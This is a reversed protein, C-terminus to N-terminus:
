RLTDILFLLFGYCVPFTSMALFQVGASSDKFPNLDGFFQLRIQVYLDGRIGRLTDYIPFWGNFQRENLTSGDEAFIDSDWSLLPDVDIYVSGQYWSSRWWEGGCWIWGESLKNGEYWCALIFLDRLYYLSIFWGIADNTSITDYDLVRMELPENQLDSDDSVEFRFDENWVPNLTRRKVPTRLVDFDAFRVEVYADTLESTKDMVPLDRAAVVRIKFICPMGPLHIFTVTRGVLICIFEAPFQYAHFM